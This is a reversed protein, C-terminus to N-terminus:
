DGIDFINEHGRGSGAEEEGVIEKGETVSGDAGVVFLWLDADSAFTGFNMVIKIETDKWSYPIQIERHTCADWTSADGIEVRQLTIDVYIESFYVDATGFPQSPGDSWDWYSMINLTWYPDCEHVTQNDAVDPAVLDVYSAQYGNAAGADGTIHIFEYRHFEGSNIGMFDNDYGYINGDDQISEDCQTYYSHGSSDNPYFDLRSSPEGWQNGPSALFWMKANRALEGAMNLLGYASVYIQQGVGIEIYDVSMTNTWIHTVGNGRNGFVQHSCQDGPFRNYDDNDLYAVSDPPTVGDDSSIDVGWPYPEAQSVIDGNNGAQFDDWKLPAAQAKEGFGAGIIVLSDGHAPVGVIEIVPFKEPVTARVCAALLLLPLAIPLIWYLHKM